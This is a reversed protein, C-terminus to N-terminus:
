QAVEIKVVIKGSNKNNFRYLYRSYDQFTNYRLQPNTYPNHLYKPLYKHRTTKSYILHRGWPSKIVEGSTFRRTNGSNIGSYNVM